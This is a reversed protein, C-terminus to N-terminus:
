TMSPQKVRTQESSVAYWIYLSILAAFFCWVSVFAYKFFLYSGIVSLLILVGFVRVKKDSAVVLALFVQLAYVIRLVLRDILGDYITTTKYLLSHQVVEVDLWGAILAFPLFMSLGYIGGFITLGALLYRKRQNAELYWVSFPVWFLWFMHSFFVYSKSALSVLTPDHMSIGSWVLGEVAQQIGFILPFAALPVWKPNSRRATHICYIGVPVLVVAATYSATASFCM